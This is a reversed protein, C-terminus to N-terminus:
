GDLGLVYAFVPWAEWLLWAAVVWAALAFAWVAVRDRM